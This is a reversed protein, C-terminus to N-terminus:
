TGTAARYQGILMILFMLASVGLWLTKFPVKKSLLGLLKAVLWGSMFPVLSSGLLAAITQLPMIGLGVFFEKWGKLIIAFILCVLFVILNDSIGKKRPLADESNINTDRM